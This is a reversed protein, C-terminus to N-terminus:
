GFGVDPVNGGDLYRFGGSGLGRGLVLTNAMQNRNLLMSLRSNFDAQFAATPMGRTEAWKLKLAFTFLISDFMPKDANSDMRYKRSLSDAGDIVWFSSVYTFTIREMDAPPTLFRMKDNEIIAAPNVFFSKSVWAEIAAKQQNNVIIVPRRNAHSWGTNDYFRSLDVPLDFETKVGDGIIEYETDFQQWQPLDSLMPGIMNAYNGMLVAHEDASDYVGSPKALTLQLCADQVCQLITGYTYLSM